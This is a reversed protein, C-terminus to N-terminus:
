KKKNKTSSQAQLWRVQDRAEELTIPPQKSLGDFGLIAMERFSVLPLKTRIKEIEADFMKELGYEIAKKRGDKMELLHNIISNSEENM